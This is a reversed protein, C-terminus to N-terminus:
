KGNNHNQHPYSRRVHRMCNTGGVPEAEIVTNAPENTHAAYAKNSSAFSGAITLASITGLGIKIIKDKAIFGDEDKIFNKISKKFTKVMRKNKNKRKEM